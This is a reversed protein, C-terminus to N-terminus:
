YARDHSFDIYTNIYVVLIKTYGVSVILVFVM